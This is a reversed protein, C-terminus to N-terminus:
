GRHAAAPRQGSQFDDFEAANSRPRMRAHQEGIQTGIHHPHTTGAHRDRARRLRPFRTAVM